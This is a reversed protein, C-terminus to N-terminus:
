PAVVSWQQNYSSSSGWQCLDAGNSTSGMGDLYLGTARNKFKYYSGAAELVWQQNYHSSGSWQGCISGNSTRGMGDLYLGTARNKIKYYSGAAELVWQQNYSSGSAYQGANSGNSTRGMGDICLNTARNQIKVYSGSPPTTPTPGSSPTPTPTAVRQTPPPTGGELFADMAVTPRGDTNWAGKNYGAWNYCQPEWYFVGLGKGGSVSKTKNIIDTLFSKCTSAATYDMGVESIIIEKGYRSVMDNMNSLCQSNLSSWNSTTPYLSMAIVDYKGGNNKLGDFIWRFLSNDYGNSIHVIVKANSFVAKVADYGSNILQTFNSMSKSARGDEWLMGDNTENGVQVWEPTVGNSKLANLVDTTHNYVDTKLQSIGHSAWAAPKYQKGPDAWSDSYHFDIMIRFGMNAARKAMTVVEDKSCHGSYPDNSPNVWVRLRISNIGHEKLIQLCDKEVGNDDYFKRGQAEMQQLWGVDAGKAFDAGHAPTIWFLNMTLVPLILLCLVLTLRSKFKKPAM